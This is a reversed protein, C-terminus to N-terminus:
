SFPFVTAFDVERHMQEVYVYEPAKVAFDGDPTSQVGEKERVWLFHQGKKWIGTIDGIKLDKVNPAASFVFDLEGEAQTSQGSSVLFRLEGPEFGLFKDANVANAYPLIYAGYGIVNFSAPYRFHVTFRLETVPVEAGEVTGDRAVNVLQKFNPGKWDGVPIDYAPTAATNPWSSVTKRSHRQRVTSGTLDYSLRYEGVQRKRPGYPAKVKWLLHGLPDLQLDQIWLTGQATVISVPTNVIAYAKAFFSDATGYLSWVRTESPPESTSARSDPQEEYMM